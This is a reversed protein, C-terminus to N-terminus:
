SRITMIMAASRSLCIPKGSGALWISVLVSFQDGVAHLLVFHLSGVAILIDSGEEASDEAVSKTPLRAIAM